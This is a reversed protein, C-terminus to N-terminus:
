FLMSESKEWYSFSELCVAVVYCLSVNRHSKIDKQAKVRFYTHITQYHELICLKKTPMICMKQHIHPLLSQGSKKYGNKWQQSILIKKNSTFERMFLKEHTKWQQFWGNTAVFDTKGLQIM